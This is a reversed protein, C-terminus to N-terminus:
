EARLQGIKEWSPDARMVIAVQITRKGDVVATRTEMSADVTGPTLRYMAGTSADVVVGVVGGFVINGWVWGSTKKELTMHYPLYGDLLLSVVHSDKRSLLLTTPTTGMEKGDVSIAAGAPTSSVAVPQQSGQMITACAATSALSVVTVLTRLKM